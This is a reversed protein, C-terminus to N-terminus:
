VPEVHVALAKGAPVTLTLTSSVSETGIKGEPGFIGARLPTGPTIGADSLPLSVDIRQDEGSINCLLIGLKGEALWASANVAPEEITYDPGFAGTARGRLLANDGAVDLLRLFQGDTVFPRAHSRTRALDRLFEAEGAVEPAMIRQPQIWGLQAGYLFARSNKWRFSFSNVPEDKAYYLFAYGITRDSYVSPFLPISHLEAPMNLIIMADFLDLWPEACEETTLVGDEPVCERLRRVLARYGEQWASGGGPSHGHDSNFCPM